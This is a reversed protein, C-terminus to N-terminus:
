QNGTEVVKRVRVAGCSCALWVTGDHEVGSDLDDCKRHELLFADLDDLVAPSPEPQM